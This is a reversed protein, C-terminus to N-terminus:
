ILGNMSLIKFISWGFLVHVCVDEGQVVRVGGATDVYECREGKEQKRFPKHM